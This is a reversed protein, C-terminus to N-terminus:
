RNSRELLLDRSVSIGTPGCSAVGGEPSSPALRTIIM